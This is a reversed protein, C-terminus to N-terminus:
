RSRGRTIKKQFALRKSTELPLRGEQQYTMKLEIPARGTRSLQRRIRKGARGKGPWLELRWRFTGLVWPPPNGKEIRWGISPAMVKFEGRAPVYVALSISGRKRDHTVKGFRLYDSPKLSRDAAFVRADLAVGTLHSVGPILENIVETGDLRARGLGGRFQPALGLRDAWYVHSANVAVDWPEGAAPIFKPNVESGDLRARGIAGAEQDGWFLFGSGVDVGCPMALGEIFDQEVESGDLRARGIAGAEQNAWYLYTGDTAIGCPRFGGTIFLPEAGSGDVNVRGIAEAEFDTWYLRGAHLAIGSPQGLDPVFAPNAVEGSLLARGVAGFIPDAWYLYQDDVALGYASGQLAPFWGHPLPWFSESGDLNARGFYDLGGWYVAAEARACLTATSAAALLAAFVVVRVLQIRLAGAM